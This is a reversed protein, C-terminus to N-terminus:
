LAAGSLSIVLNLFKMVTEWDIEERVLEAQITPVMARIVERTQKAEKCYDALQEPTAQIRVRPSVSCLLETKAEMRGYHYNATGWLITANPGHASSCGALLLVGVLAARRM